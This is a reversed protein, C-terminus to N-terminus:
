IGQIKVYVKSTEEGKYESQQWATLFMGDNDTVYKVRPQTEGAENCTVRNVSKVQGNDIM